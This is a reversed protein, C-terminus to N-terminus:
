LVNIEGTRRHHALLKRITRRLKPSPDHFRAELAAIVRPRLARPSGDALAHVVHTRVGPDPDDALELVRDWVRRRNAKVHCPCLHQVARRRVRPDADRSLVLWSELEEGRVVQGTLPPGKRDLM